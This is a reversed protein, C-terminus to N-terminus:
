GPATSRRLPCAPRATWSCTPASSAPCGRERNQPFVGVIKVRPLRRRRQVTWAPMLLLTADGGDREVAHHHRVPVVMDGRFAERLADILAPFELARDNEDAAIVRM